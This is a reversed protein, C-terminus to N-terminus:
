RLLTMPSQMGDVFGLAYNGLEYGLLKQLDEPLERAIEPPVVLYQNEEQRLTAPIYGMVVSLRTRDSRNAGGGHYLSGSYALVSGAKMEAQATELDALRRGDPLAVDPQEYVEAGGPPDPLDFSGTSIHTAGNQATFDTVAWMCNIMYEFNEPLPLSEWLWCDRHVPQREEGPHLAIAQTVNLQINSAIGLFRNALGLILPHTALPRAAPIRAIVAGARQTKSGLFEDDRTSMPKAALPAAIEERIAELMQADALEDIIVAREREYIATIEEIPTDPRVHAIQQGQPREAAAGM